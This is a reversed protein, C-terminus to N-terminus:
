GLWAQRDRLFTALSLKKGSDDDAEPEDVVHYFRHSPPEAATQKLFVLQASEALSRSARVAMIAWHGDRKNLRVDWTNLEGTFDNPLGLADLYQLYYNHAKLDELVEAAIPRALLRMLDSIHKLRASRLATARAIPEALWSLLPPLQEEIFTIAAGLLIEDHQAAGLSDWDPSKRAVYAKLVHWMESFLLRRETLQTEVL